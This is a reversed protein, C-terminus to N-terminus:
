LTICVCTYVDHRRVFTHTHAYTQEHTHTRVNTRAHSHTRTDGAVCRADRMIARRKARRGETGASSNDVVANRTRGYVVVGGTAGDTRGGVARRDTWGDARGDASASTAARHTHRDRTAQGSCPRLGVAVAVAPSRPPPTTPFPTLAHATYSIITLIIIIIIILTTIITMMTGSRYNHIRTRSTTWLVPLRLSAM